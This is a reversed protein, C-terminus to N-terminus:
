SSPKPPTVKRKKSLDDEERPLSFKGKNKKVKTGGLEGGDDGKEPSISSTKTSTNHVDHVEDYKKTNSPRPTDSMTEPSDVDSM